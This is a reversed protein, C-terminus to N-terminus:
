ASTSSVFAVWFVRVSGKIVCAPYIGDEFATFASELWVFDSLIANFFTSRDHLDLFHVYFSKIALVIM